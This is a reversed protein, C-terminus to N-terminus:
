QLVQMKEGHYFRSLMVEVRRNQARGEETDNPALPQYEGCGVASFRAPALPAQELMFKLFNVARTASLDWNSPFRENSIPMNDTHGSVIVRQNVTGLLKAITAGMQQSGELLDASGSPFLAREKIRIMLGAETLETSLESELENEKIYTEMTQQVESLQQNERLYQGTDDETPLDHSPYYSTTGMKDFISPGGSNFASTFAQAMQQMKQQDTQSTAFLVIFLALLLTLIDAYPILWAESPHEDHGGHKKKRAM